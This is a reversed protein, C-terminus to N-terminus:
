SAKKDSRASSKFRSIVEDKEEEKINEALLLELIYRHSNNDNSLYTKDAFVHMNRRSIHRIETFIHLFKKLQPSAVNGRTCYYNLVSLVLSDIAEVAM